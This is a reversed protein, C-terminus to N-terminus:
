FGRLEFSGGCFVNSEEGEHVTAMGMDDDDNGASGGPQGQQTGATPSPRVKLRPLNDRVRQATQRTQPQYQNM